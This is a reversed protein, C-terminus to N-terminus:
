DIQGKAAAEAEDMDLPSKGSQHLYASELQFRQYSNDPFLWSGILMAAISCVFGYILSPIKGPFVWETLVWTILGVFISLVAGINSANKWYLGATMPVFLCVLSLASSQGVLEYINSQMTAMAASCIAVAVVGGRMVSLMQQDTPNKLLPRILNEGLVTAPALMGGSTTSLIASLLAGFFLIQLALNGHQQVMRPIVMQADGETLEPYLVKGVLGIFLPIFAITLYLFSSLFAARVATRENRAAMVRQFVDQQPISGLGITIWAAIYHVWPYFGKEPFFRFFGDPVRDFVPKLGGVRITLVTALTILGILIMITQVFDTISVAWMGGIYTYIL